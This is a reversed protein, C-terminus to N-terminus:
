NWVDSAEVGGKCGGIAGNNGSSWDVIALMVSDGISSLFVNNEFGQGLGGDRDILERGVKFLIERDVMVMLVMLVMVVFM